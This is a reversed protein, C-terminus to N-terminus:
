LSAEVIIARAADIDLAIESRGLRVIRVGKKSITQLLELERGPIFGIGMLRNELSEDDTRIDSIRLTKSPGIDSLAIENGM